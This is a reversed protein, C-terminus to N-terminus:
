QNTEVNMKQLAEFYKRILEEYDKSYGEQIAKQLDRMIGQKADLANPDFEKPSQCVVDRGTESRRKKEYDRERASRSADLLRSLIKEQKQITEPNVNEQQMDRMVEQMDEAIKRLDGMVREGDRNQKAEQELQQLSKQLAAQQGLLRQIQAREQESMQGQGLQQTGQNIGQQQGAMRQLQQMLSMGGQGSSNSQMSQAIKKAAENLEAMAGGQMQSSQQGSRQEMSQMSQQMLTMAQGIHKGMEPTVAFSKKSLKMLDNTVKQLQEMVQQQEQQADRFQQSNPPLKASENKLDEQRQSLNLINQLAKRMANQMEREQNENLKKKVQEMKKQFKKMQEATKKQQQSAGKCNGGQCQGASESMQQQMETLNMESQAQQMESLPMDQPFEEMKKRLESLERQMAEMEKKMAEQEKALKNLEEQNKPDAKETRESLDSQKQALEEARKTLEDVKQEIQLRKLLEMTREISQKFQEENFQFNELAQKMQEPSVNKMAETLRKMAQQMEPLNMQQMMKQLEQYKQLTEDSMMKQQDMHQTMDSLKSNIDEVKKTIEEQRKVLDEVKKKQQWDMQKMNTKKLDRQVEEMEKQMKEVDNLSKKLDDIAKEQVKDAQAFVEEMSPLRLTYTDTRAVKPGNVNDNDYVEVFYSVVDEPVLNLSSLNWVYPVETAQQTQMPLPLNFFTFEESPKEYRSSVLKYGLRMRSFGFDDSIKMLMALRMEETLDVNKGPELIQIAPPLDPVLTMKYSIPDTNRIGSADILELHYRREKRLRISATATTSEHDLAVSESDDFVIHASEVEKNLTVDFDIKTGPLATVDGVNDDLYRPPLKTYSPFTLLLRLNKVLPRDVVNLRYEDSNYELSSAYYHTTSRINEITHHFIGNSDPSLVVHEFESQEAERVYFSIVPQQQGVTKIRIPITEGKVFKKTGPTIEWQFPAPPRFTQTFHLIRHASQFLAGPFMAFMAAAFAFSYFATRAATKAPANSVVTTFDLTSVNRAVDEFSADVLAFSSHSRQEVHAERYVQMANLLRDKLSPFHEGIQLAVQDDNKGKLIGFVRLIKPGVQWALLAIASLFTASFVIARGLPSLHAISEIATAILLLLVIIGGGYFLGRLLEIKEERTRVSHIRHIITTFNSTREQNSM